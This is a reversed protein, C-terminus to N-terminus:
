TCSHYKKIHKHYKKTSYVQVLKKICTVDCFALFHDSELEERVHWNKNLDQASLIDFDYGSYKSLKHLIISIYSGHKPQSTHCQVSPGWKFLVPGNRNESSNNRNTHKSNFNGVFVFIKDTQCWCM